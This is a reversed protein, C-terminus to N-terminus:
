GRGYRKVSQCQEGLGAIGLRMTYGGDLYRPPTFGLGVGQPTGTIIVDGPLLTMFKSVYSVCQAVSFIMDATNSHQVRGGNVECWLDLAQENGVEDRTVLWPGIPCFTDHSKGKTWQGGRELQHERESVDNVIVYGFVHDLAVAESVNRARRGIVVGLEVEWDSKTSNEPLVVDDFPGTIATNAKLFIIPEKPIEAGAEKAHERYNLGIGVVKGINGIPCGLRSGAPAAPLADIERSDLGQLSDAGILQPDIDSVHASLDRVVGDSGVIGPKEAGTHGFRVLKM